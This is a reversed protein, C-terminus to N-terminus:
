NSWYSEQNILNSGLAVILSGLIWQFSRELSDVIRSTLTVVIGPLLIRIQWPCKIGNNM